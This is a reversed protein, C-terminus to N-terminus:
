RALIWFILFLVIVTKLISKPYQLSTSDSEMWSSDLSKIFTQEYLKYIDLKLLENYM